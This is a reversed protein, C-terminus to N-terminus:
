EAKGTSRKSKSAWLNESDHCNRRAEDNCRKNTSAASFKSIKGATKTNPLYREVDAHLPLAEGDLM